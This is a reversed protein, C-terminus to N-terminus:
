KGLPRVLRPKSLAVELDHKLQDRHKALALIHDVDQALEHELELVRNSLERVKNKDDARLKVEELTMETVWTHLDSGCVFCTVAGQWQHPEGELCFRGCSTKENM